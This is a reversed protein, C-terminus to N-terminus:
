PRTAFASGRVGAFTLPVTTGNGLRLSTFGAEWLLERTALANWGRNCSTEMETDRPNAGSEACVCNAGATLGLLNPEHVGLGLLSRMELTALTVVAVVQAMRRLSIQGKAALPTGPVAVRRMAGHWSSEYDIGTQMQDVLEEPTHEPGIPEVCYNLHLGADRLVQLSAGRALPDLTTDVGERLRCIHYAGSVGAARMEQAQVHDVDGINAIIQTHAPIHDRVLQVVRLFRTFNFTHMMMLYLRELDGLATFARAQSVIEDDTLHLEPLRAHGEGFVCFGCNGPCPQVDIGIQGTLQAANGFRARSAADAVAMTARAEASEAPYTLLEVRETRTPAVGEKARELVAAVSVSFTV